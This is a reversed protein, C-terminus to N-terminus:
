SEHCAASEMFKLMRRQTGYRRQRKQHICLSIAGEGLKVKQIHYKDDLDQKSGVEGMAHRSRMHCLLEGSTLM